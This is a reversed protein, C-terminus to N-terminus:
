KQYEYLRGQDVKAQQLTGEHRMLEQKEYNSIFGERCFSYSHASKMLEMKKAGWSATEKERKKERSRISTGTERQISSRTGWHQDIREKWTAWGAGRVAQSIRASRGAGRAAGKGRRM